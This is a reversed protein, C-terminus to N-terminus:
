GPYETHSSGSDPVGQARPKLHNVGKKETPRREIHSGPSSEGVALDLNSMTQPKRKM